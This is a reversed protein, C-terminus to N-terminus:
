KLWKNRVIDARLPRKSFYFVKNDVLVELFRHRFLSRLTKFARFNNFHPTFIWLQARKTFERARKENYWVWYKPCAVSLGIIKNILIIKNLKTWVLAIIKIARFHRWVGLRYFITSLVHRQAIIHWYLISNMEKVFHIFFVDIPRLLM